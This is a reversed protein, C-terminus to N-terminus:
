PDPPQSNSDRRARWKPAFSPVGFGATKASSAAVLTRLLVSKAVMTRVEKADVEVRQALARLQDRRYGGSETAQEDPEHCPRL